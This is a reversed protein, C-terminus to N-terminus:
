TQCEFEYVLFSVLSIRKAAEGGNLLQAAKVM